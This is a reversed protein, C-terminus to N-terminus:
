PISLFTYNWFSEFKLLDAHFFSWKLNLSIAIINRSIFCVHFPAYSPHLSQCIQLLVYPCMVCCSQNPCFSTSRSNWWRWRRECICRWGRWKKSVVYWCSSVIISASQKSFDILPLVDRSTILCFM